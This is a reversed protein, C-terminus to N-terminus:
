LKMDEQSGPFIHFLVGERQWAASCLSESTEAPSRTIKGLSFRNGEKCGYHSFCFKFSYGLDDDPGVVFTGGNGGNGNFGPGLTGCNTCVSGQIKKQQPSMFSAMAEKNCLPSSRAHQKWPQNDHCGLHERSVFGALIHQGAGLPLFPFSINM